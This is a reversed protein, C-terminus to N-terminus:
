KITPVGTYNLVVRENSTKNVTGWSIYHAYVDLDIIYSGDENKVVLLKGNIGVPLFATNDKSGYNIADYKVIFADTDATEFDIETGIYEPKVAVYCARDNSLSFEFKEYGTVGCVRNNSLLTAETIDFIPGPNGDADYHQGNNVYVFAPNLGELSEVDTVKGKFEVVVNTGDAYTADLNITVAKTKNDVATTLSGGTQVEYTEEVSGEADYKYLTVTIGSAAGESLDVDATNMKLQSVAIQVAYMGNRADAPEAAEVMSIGFGYPMGEEAPLMRFVAPISAIKVEEGSAPAILMTYENSVVEFGVRDIDAVNYEIKTGDTKVVTMVETKEVFAWALSACGLALVSLMLKRM